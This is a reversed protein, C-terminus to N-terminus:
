SYDPKSKLVNLLIVTVASKSMVSCQELKNM